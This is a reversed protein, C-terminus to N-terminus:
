LKLQKSYILPTKKPPLCYATLISTKVTPLDNVPPKRNKVVESRYQLTRRERKEVNRKFDKLRPSHIISLLYSTNLLGSYM